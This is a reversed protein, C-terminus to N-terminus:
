PLLIPERELIIEFKEKVTSIVKNALALIDDTTAGTQATIVLANNGYISTHGFIQGKFGCQDVLWGASVKIGNEVPFTIINPFKNKLLGAQEMSVTPNKFFSGCNPIVSPDPLKKSRIEIISNRIEALTPTSINRETFYTKVDKYDPISIASLNKKLRLAINTIIYRGSEQKFLSDRYTLNCERTSLRVNKNEKTDYTEVYELVDKIETGYAGVNQIPTAGATGPIASLAEIGQLNEEVARAVINDWNEGAGVSLLVSNNTEELKEFGKIQMLGVAINNDGDRLLTNTGGGIVIFPLNSQRSNEVFSKVEESTNLPTVSHVSGGSKM